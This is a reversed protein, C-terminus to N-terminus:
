GACGQRKVAWRSAGGLQAPTVISSVTSLVSRGVVHAAILPSGATPLTPTALAAPLPPPISHGLWPQKVSRQKKAVCRVYSRSARNRAVGVRRHLEDAGDHPGVAVAGLHGVQHSARRLSVPMHHPLAALVVGCGGGQPTSCCSSFSPAYAAHAAAALCRLCECCCWCMRASLTSLSDAVNTQPSGQPSYTPCTLPPYVTPADRHCSQEHLGLSTAPLLSCRPQHTPTPLRGPGEATNHRARLHGPSRAAVFFSSYTTAACHDANPVRDRICSGKIPQNSQV